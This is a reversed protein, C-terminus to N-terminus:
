DCSPLGDTLLWFAADPLTPNPAMPEVYSTGLLHEMIEGMISMTLPLYEPNTLYFIGVKEAATAIYPASIRAAIIPLSPVFQLAEGLTAANPLTSLPLALAEPIAPAAILGLGVAGGIASVATDTRNYADRQAPSMNRRACTDAAVEPPLLGRADVFCEPNNAVHAFLNVGGREEIPDRNIWRQLGPDYFASANAVLLLWALGVLWFLKARM